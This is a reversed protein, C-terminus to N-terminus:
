GRWGSGLRASGRWGAPQHAVRMSRCVNVSRWAEFEVPITGPWARLDRGRHGLRM